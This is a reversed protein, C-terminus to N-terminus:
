RTGRVGKENEDGAGEEDLVAILLYLHGIMDMAVERPQESWDSTDAMEILARRLKGAKRLIEVTEGIEGPVEPAYEGYEANKKEFQKEWEPALEGFIYAAILTKYGGTSVSKDGSTGETPASKGIRIGEDHTPEDYYM